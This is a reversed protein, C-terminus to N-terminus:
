CRELYAFIWGPFIIWMIMGALLGAALMGGLVQWRRHRLSWVVILLLVLYTLHPKITTLLLVVGAWGHWGSQLGKVGLVLGVLVLGVIQGIIITQLTAGFSLGALLVVFVGRRKSPDTLM